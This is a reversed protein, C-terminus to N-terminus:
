SYPGFRPLIPKGFRGYGGSSAIREDKAMQGEAITRDSINSRQSINQSQEEYLPGWKFLKEASIRNATENNLDNWFYNLQREKSQDYANIAAMAPLMSMANFQSSASPAGGFGKAAQGFINGISGLPNSGGSGFLGGGGASSNKWFDYTNFAQSNNWYSSDNNFSAGGLPNIGGVGSYLGSM